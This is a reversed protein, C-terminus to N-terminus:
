RQCIIMIYFLIIEYVEAQKKELFPGMAIMHVLLYNLYLSIIGTSYTHLYVPCKVLGCAWNTCQLAQAYQYATVAFSLKLMCSHQGSIHVGLSRAWVAM